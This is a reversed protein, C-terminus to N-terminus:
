SKHGLGPSAQPRLWTVLVVDPSSLYGLLREKGSIRGGDCGITAHWPKAFAKQSAMFYRWGAISDDKASQKQLKKGLAEALKSVKYLSKAKEATLLAHAVAQKAEPNARRNFYIPIFRPQKRLNAM